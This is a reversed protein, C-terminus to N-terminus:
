MASFQLYLQGVYEFQNADYCKGSVNSRVVANPLTFLWTHQKEGFALECTNQVRISWKYNSNYM